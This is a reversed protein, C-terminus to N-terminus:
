GDITNRAELPMAKALALAFVMGVNLPEEIDMDLNIIAVARHVTAIVSTPMAAGIM